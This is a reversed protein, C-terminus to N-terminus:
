DLPEVKKECTYELPVGYFSEYTEKWFAYNKRGMEKKNEADSLSPNPEIPKGVYITYEQIPFGDDGMISSDKMCIFVPVVPVKSSIAITYAGPKVPKPKRYNWWMSQEPYILVYHGNQLHYKTASMMEMLTRMNNSLPLTNCNRMLEGFFGPFSTYNGEKIIRFLKRKKAWKTKEYVMQMAFSDMANFHNCTLVAGSDLSNLNEIGIVDNVILKKDKIIKNLYKRALSFANKAKIRTILKEQKFDVTGPEITKGPPDIEVDKDFIGKKELDAIRSLVALREKDQTPM